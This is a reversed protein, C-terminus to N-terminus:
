GEAGDLWGSLTRIFADPTTENSDKAEIDMVPLGHASAFRTVDCAEVTEGFTLLVNAALLYERFRFSDQIFFLRRTSSLVMLGERIGAWCAVEPRAGLLVFCVDNRVAVCAQAIKVFRVATEPLSPEGHVLLIRSKDSVGLDHRLWRRVDDRDHDQKPVNKRPSLDSNLSVPKSAAWASDPVVSAPPESPRQGILRHWGLKLARLPATIRWSTSRMLNDREAVLGVVAKNLQSLQQHLQGIEAWRSGIRQASRHHEDRFWAVERELEGQRLAAEILGCSAVSAPRDVAGPLLDQYERVMEAVGRVPQNALHGRIRRLLTQDEVMERLAALLSEPTPDFLLGNVGHVIREAFAGTRTAAVPIGFAFMESLTYSFSEPLISLLLACDPSFNAVQAGLESQDYHPIVEVNPMKVFVQGFEGCGLLLIEAHDLLGPMVAHLLHLGKHPLLRGPVVIRLRDGYIPLAPTAGRPEIANIDLGHPIHHWSKEAMAPLLAVWRSHVSESPAVIQINERALREAYAVRLQLWFASDTNHWFANLANHGLCSQLKDASCDLCPADFYAFMAPCFPYLDHLVVITPLGTDMADLSHGILSSIFVAQVGFIDVIGALIIRYEQHDIATAPIPVALNWAMVPIDTQEPDLLEMGWGAFNRESSSRLILNRHAVDGKRFDTMWRDTGGGWSHGVHLQVSRNDAQRGRRAEQEEQLCQSETPGHWRRARDIAARLVAVPDRAIFDRVHDLYDPYTELLAEMATKQLARREESFSVGGEHFVFVDGALVNRWGDKAARRCFDNEEGYGRGFRKADFLGVRGLCTRRIYMCFGVATPLDMTLGTNTAAFLRDLTALGLTGPVGGAWGEYPYSCITGNNSFPTVTGIGYDRYACARLRDLWDNAVETDSNLLVVDREPHLSMGRNVSGVFGLNQQNRLLTVTQGLVLEDLYASLESDPSADDVLVLEYPTTQPNGLVSEICIRTEEYGKYIPIIVDVLLSSALHMPM